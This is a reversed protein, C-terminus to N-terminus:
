QASGEPALAHPRQVWGVLVLSFASSLLVMTDAVWRKRVLRRPPPAVACRAEGGPVLWHPDPRYTTGLM